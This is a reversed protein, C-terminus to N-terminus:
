DVPLVRGGAAISVLSSLLRVVLRSIAPSAPSRHTRTNPTPPCHPAHNQNPSRGPHFASIFTPPDPLCFAPHSKKGARPPNWPSSFAPTTTHCSRITTPPRAGCTNVRRHRQGRSYGTNPVPGVRLTLHSIILGGALRRKLGCSTTKASEFLPEM